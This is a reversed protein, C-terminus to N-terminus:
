CWNQLSAAQLLLFSLQRSNIPTQTLPDTGLLLRGLAPMKKSSLDLSILENNSLQLEELCPLDVSGCDITVLRNSAVYVLRKGLNLINLSSHRLSQINSVMNSSLNLSVMGPFMTHRLDLNTFLNSSLSISKLSSSSIFLLDALSNGEMSVEELEELNEKLPAFSKAGLNSNDLDWKVLKRLRDLEVQRLQRCGTVIRKLEVESQSNNLVLLTGIRDCMAVHLLETHNMSWLTSINVTPACFRLERPQELLRRDYIELRALQERDVLDKLTVPGKKRNLYVRAIHDAPIMLM